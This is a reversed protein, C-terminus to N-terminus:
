KEEQARKEKSIRAAELNFQKELNFVKAAKEASMIKVFEDYYHVQVKMIQEIYAMKKNFDDKNEIILASVSNYDEQYEEFKHLFKANQEESLGLQQAIYVKKIRLIEPNVVNQKRVVRQAQKIERQPQRVGTGDSARFAQASCVLGFGLM